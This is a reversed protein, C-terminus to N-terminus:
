DCAPPERRERWGTAVDVIEVDADLYVVAVRSGGVGLIKAVNETELPVQIMRAGTALDHAILSYGGACGEAVEEDGTCSVSAAVVRETAGWRDCRGDDGLSARPRGDLGFLWADGDEDIPKDLDPPSDLVLADSVYEIGM